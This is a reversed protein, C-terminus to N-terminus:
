ITKLYESRLNTFEEDTVVADVYGSADDEFKWPLINVVRHKYGVLTANPLYVLRVFPMDEWEKKIYVEGPPTFLWPLVGFSSFQSELIQGFTMLAKLADRRVNEETELNFHIAQNRLQSLARFSNVANETLVEWEHLADIAIDWNDFSEKRYVYKYCKSAKYSDRLGLILHNLVREGLACVATLAPYYHCQVFASRAQAYFQNHFAVVSFPKAGLEMFNQFKKGFNGVGHEAQLQQIARAQNQRCVMKAQEEWENPIPDFVRVRTDFDSLSIRYRKM